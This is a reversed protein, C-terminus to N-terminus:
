PHSGDGDVWFEANLAGGENEPGERQSASEAPQGKRRATASRHSPVAVDRSRQRHECDGNPVPEASITTDM